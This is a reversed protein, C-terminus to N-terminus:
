LSTLLGDRAQTETPRRHRRAFRVNVANGAEVEKRTLAALCALMRLLLHSRAFICVVHDAMLFVGFQGRLSYTRRPGNDAFGDANEKWSRQVPKTRPVIDKLLFDTSATKNSIPAKSVVFDDSGNEPRSRVHPVTAPFKKLQHHRPKHAPVSAPTWAHSRVDQGGFHLTVQLSANTKGFVDYSRENLRSPAHTATAINRGNVQVPVEDSSIPVGEKLLIFMVALSFDAPLCAAHMWFCSRFLGPRPCVLSSLLLSSVLTAACRFGLDAAGVHFEIPPDRPLASAILVLLTVDKLWWATATPRLNFDGRRETLESFFCRGRADAM